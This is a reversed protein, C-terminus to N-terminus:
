RRRARRALERCIRLAALASEGNSRVERGTRVASIIERLAQAMAVPRRTRYVRGRASLEGGGGPFAELGRRLWETERGFNKVNVRGRTGLLQMEFISYERGDVGVLYVPVGGLVLRADVTPDDTAFDEHHGFVKADRAPGFWDLLLDIAHSGNHCVGRSYYVVVKQVAGLTGRQLAAKVRHMHIDWRRQYNVALVIGKRRCAAVIAEAKGVDTTLPKECWIAKVSPCRVCAGLVSAHTENPTCVSVIDPAQEALMCAADAYATVKGWRRSFERARGPDRDAVAVLKTAPQMWYAKAHSRVGGARTPRDERGAIFGCGIIAARLVRDDSPRPAVKGM